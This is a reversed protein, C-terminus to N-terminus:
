GAVPGEQDLKSSSVVASRLAAELEERTPAVEILGFRILQDPSM